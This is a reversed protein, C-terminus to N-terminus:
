SNDSPASFPTWKSGRINMLADFMLIVSNFATWHLRFSSLCIFPMLTSLPSLLKVDPPTHPNCGTYLIPGWGPFNCNLTSFLVPSRYLFHFMPILGKVMKTLSICREERFTNIKDSVRPRAHEIHHSRTVCRDWCLMASFKGIMKIVNEHVYHTYKLEILM